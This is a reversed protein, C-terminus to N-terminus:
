FRQFIQTIENATELEVEKLSQAETLAAKKKLITELKNDLLYGIKEMLKVAGEVTDDTVSKIDGMLGLLKKSVDIIISEFLLNRRYLEGIFRINNFLRLKFKYLKDEDKTEVIKKADDSFFQDFSTKCYDILLFRLKSQKMTKTTAKLDKLHLELTIM